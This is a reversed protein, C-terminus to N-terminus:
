GSELIKGGDAQEMDIYRKNALRDVEVKPWWISQTDPTLKQGVLKAFARMDDYSAFNVQLTKTPGLDEQVFEPMGQWEDEWWEGKDFFTEQTEGNSGM